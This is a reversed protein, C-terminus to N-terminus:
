RLERIEGFIHEATAFVHHGQQQRHEADADTQTRQQALFKGPVFDFDAQHREARYAQRYERNIQEEGAGRAAVGYRQARHRKQLLGATPAHQKIQQHNTDKTPKINHRQIRQNLAAAFGAVLRADATLSKDNLVKLVANAQTEVYAESKKDAMAAPASALMAGIALVQMVKM